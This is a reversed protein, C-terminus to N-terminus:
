VTSTTRCKECLYGYEKVMQLYYGSPFTDGCRDCKTKNIPAALSPDFVKSVYVNGQKRALQAARHEKEQQIEKDIKYFSRLTYISTAIQFLGIWAMLGRLSLLGVIILLISDFILVGPSRVFRFTMLIGLALMSVTFLLLFVVPTFDVHPTDKLAGYLFLLAILNISAWFITLLGCRRIEDLLIEETFVPANDDETEDADSTLSKLETTDLSVAIGQAVLLNEGQSQRRSYKVNMVANAGMSAAKRQLSDDVASKKPPQVPYGSSRFAPTRLETQINGVVRYPKPAEGKLLKVDSLGDVLEQNM